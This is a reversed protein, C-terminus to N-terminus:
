ATPQARGAGTREGTYGPHVDADLGRLRGLAGLLEFLTDRQEPTLGETVVAEQQEAASRLAVLTERGKDTLEIQQVRRDTMSRARRAIGAAELDDIISVVRSQVTGLKDALERQSIGPTRGIIRIVGAQPPTVGLQAAEAAFVDTAFTGLQSLLFGIRAPRHAPAM